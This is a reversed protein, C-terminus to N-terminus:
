CYATGPENLTFSIVINDNAATSDQIELSAFSPPTTDLTTKNGSATQLTRVAVLNAQCTFVWLACLPYQRIGDNCRLVQTSRYLIKYMKGFRRVDSEPCRNIAKNPSTPAVSQPMCPDPRVTCFARAHSPDHSNM